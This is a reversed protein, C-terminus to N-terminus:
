LVLKLFYYSAFGSFILSDFRDLIGGHGPILWGTDKVGMDRKIGSEVLDGIQAATSIILGLVIRSLVSLESAYVFGASALPTLILAALAGEWTKGPSLQPAMKTRGFLKGMVYAASDSVWTAILILVVLLWDNELDRILILYSLLFGVYLSGFATYSCNLTAQSKGLVLLYWFFFIVLAIILALELGKEGRLLAALSFSFGVVTGLVMNPRLGNRRVMRYFENLGLVTVLSILAFFPVRGWRLLSLVLAIGIIGSIIRYRLMRIHDVTPLRGDPTRRKVRGVVGCQQSGM